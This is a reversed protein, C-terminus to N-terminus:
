AIGVGRPALVTGGRVDIARCRGCVARARETRERRGVCEAASPRPGASVGDRRGVGVRVSLVVRGASTRNDQVVCTRM